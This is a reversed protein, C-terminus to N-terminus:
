DQLTGLLEIANKIHGIKENIEITDSKMKLANTLENVRRTVRSAAKSWEM